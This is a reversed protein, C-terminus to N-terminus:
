CRDRAVPDAIEARLEELVALTLEESVVKQIWESVAKLEETNGSHEQLSAYIEGALNELKKWSRDVCYIEALDLGALVSEFAGIARLGGYASELLREAHRDVGARMFIRAEAWELKLYPAYRWFGERPRRLRSKAEKILRLSLKLDAHSGRKLIIAALNQLACRHLELDDAASLVLVEGLDAVIQSRVRLLEATKGSAAHHRGVARRMVAHAVDPHELQRYIVISREALALAEKHRGQWSRLSSLRRFLNAQDAKSIEEAPDGTADTRILTFARRFTSEAEDLSGVARYARGLIALARAMLERKRLASADTVSKAFDPTHEAFVLGREPNAFIMEDTLKLYLLCFVEFHYRPNFVLRALCKPLKSSDLCRLRRIRQKAREEVLKASDASGTEHERADCSMPGRERDAVPVKPLPM